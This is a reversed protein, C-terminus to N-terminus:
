QYIIWVPGVRTRFPTGHTLRALYDRCIKLISDERERENKNLFKDELFSM